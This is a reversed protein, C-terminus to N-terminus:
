EVLHSLGTAIDRRGTLRTGGETLGLYKGRRQVGSDPDITFDRLHMEYIIAESIPFTPREAIPTKDAVIIARGDHSTVARAYPDILERAPDFRPDPGQATLTYFYGAWDGAIKTDWTGDSDGSMSFLRPRGGAPGEYLHLTLSSATPAWVRFVTEEPTYLAGLPQDSIIQDAPHSQQSGGLTHASLEATTM